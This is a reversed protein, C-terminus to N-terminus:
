ERLDAVPVAAIGLRGYIEVVGDDAVVRLPGGDWPLDFPAGSGTVTVLADGPEITCGPVAVGPRWETVPAGAPPAAVLRGGDLSLSMPLSTAGAWGPGGVDRLWTVLGPSGDAHTFVSGAYHSPGYTLRSWTGGVRYAVHHLTGPEWVSVVLVEQGDVEVVQPCEWGPGTWAGDVEAASRSALVGAYTWTVLDHSTWAWATALDPGSSAGVVMRWGDGHRQEFPDRFHTAEAPATVVVDEKRWSVWGDDLPVARRVRGLDLHPEDVATYFLVAEGGDVVLSGSWCGTEDDDPALAVPAADWTLLDASTAHGWRCDSRWTTSDPVHQFFLHYRGDHWTLALPDNVWGSAPAHHYRV